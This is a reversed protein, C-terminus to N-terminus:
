VDSKLKLKLNLRPADSPINQKIRKYLQIFLMAPSPKTEGLQRRNFQICIQLFVITCSLTETIM